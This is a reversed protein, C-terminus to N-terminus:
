PSETSLQLWGGGNGAPLAVGSARRLALHMEEEWIVCRAQSRGSEM